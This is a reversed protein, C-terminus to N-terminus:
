SRSENIFYEYLLELDPQDKPRNMQKKFEYVNRLTECLYDDIVEAPIKNMGIIVEVDKALKYTGKKTPKKNHLGLEAALVDSIALDIDATEERLGHMLLSGGSIIVYQYKPLGLENLRRLFERKNM